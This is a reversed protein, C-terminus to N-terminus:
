GIILTIIYIFISPIMLLMINFFYILFIQYNNFGVVYLLKMINKEYYLISIIIILIIILSIIFLILSIGRFFLLNNILNNNINNIVLVGKNEYKKYLSINDFIVKLYKKENNSDISIGYKPLEETNIKIIEYRKKNIKIKEFTETDVIFFINNDSIIKRNVLKNQYYLFCNFCSLLFIIILFYINRKKRFFSIINIM